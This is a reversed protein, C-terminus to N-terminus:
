IAAEMLLAGCNKYERKEALMESSELKERNLLGLTISCQPKLKYKEIIKLIQKYMGQSQTCEQQKKQPPNIIKILDLVPM